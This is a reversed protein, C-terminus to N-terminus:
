ARRGMLNYSSTSRVALSILGRTISCCNALDWSRDSRWLRGLLLWMRRVYVDAWFRRSYHDRSRFFSLRFLNPCWSSNVHWGGKPRQVNSPFHILSQMSGVRPPTLSPLHFTLFSRRSLNSWTMHQTTRSLCPSGSFRKSSQSEPPLWIKSYNRTLRGISQFRLPRKIWKTVLFDPFFNM